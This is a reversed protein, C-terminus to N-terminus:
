PTCALSGTAKSPVYPLLWDPMHAILYEPVGDRYRIVGNIDVIFETPVNYVDYTDTILEGSDFAMSYNVQHHAAYSRMQEPSDDWSTNIAIIEIKDGFQEQLKRYRPTKNVCYACWSNWFVVYVPKKGRFDSLHFVDGDQTVVEFDPAVEGVTAAAAQGGLIPVAFGLFLLRLLRIVIRALLSKTSVSVPLAMGKNSHITAKRKPIYTSALKDVSFM